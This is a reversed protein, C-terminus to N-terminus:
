YSVDFEGKRFRRDAWFVAVREARTEYGGKETKNVRGDQVVRGTLEWCEYECYYRKVRGTWPSIIERTFAFEAPVVRTPIDPRSGVYEYIVRTKCM